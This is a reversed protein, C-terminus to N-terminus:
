YVVWITGNLSYPGGAAASNIAIHLEGAVLWASEIRGKGSAAVFPGSNNGTYWGFLLGAGDQYRQGAYVGGTEMASGRNTGRITYNYNEFVIMTLVPSNASNVDRATMFTLGGIMAGVLNQGTFEAYDTSILAVGRHNPLAFRLVKREGGNISTYSDLNASIDRSVRIFTYDLQVPGVKQWTIGNNGDAALVQGEPIGTVTVLGSLEQWTSGGSGNATLVAGDPAEESAVAHIVPTGWSAGGEGDALLAYGEAADGSSISSTGVLEWTTGGGGDSKLVTGAAADGPDVGGAADEWTAGGEGNATLVQGEAAEGSGIEDATISGPAVDLDDLNTKTM